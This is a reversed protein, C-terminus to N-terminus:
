PGQSLRLSRDTTMLEFPAPGEGGSIGLAELNSCLIGPTDAAVRQPRHDVDSVGITLPGHPFPTTRLLGTLSLGKALRLEHTMSWNVSCGESPLIPVM